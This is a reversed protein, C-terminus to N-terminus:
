LIELMNGPGFLRDDQDSFRDPINGYPFYFTMRTAHLLFFYQQFHCTHFNIAFVAPWDAAVPM